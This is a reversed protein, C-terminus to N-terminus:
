TKSYAAAFREIGQNIEQLSSDSDAADEPADEKTLMFLDNHSSAKSEEAEFGSRKSARSPIKASTSTDGAKSRNHPSFNLQSGLPSVGFGLDQRKQKNVKFDVVQSTLIETKPPREFGLSETMANDKKELRRKMIGASYKPLISYVQQAKFFDFGAGREKRQLHPDKGIAFSSVTHKGFNLFTKRPIETVHKASNLSSSSKKLIDCSKEYSKPQINLQLIRSQQSLPSNSQIQKGLTPKSKARQLQSTSKEKIKEEIRAKLEQLQLSNLTDLELAYPDKSQRSHTSRDDRISGRESKEHLQTAMLAVQETLDELNQEMKRCKLRLDGDASEFIGNGIRDFATPTSMRFTLAPRPARASHFGSTKLSPRDEDFRATLQHKRGFLPRGDGGANQSRLKGFVALCGESLFRSTPWRVGLAAQQVSFRARTGGAGPLQDTEPSLIQLYKHAAMLSIPLNNNLLLGWAVM